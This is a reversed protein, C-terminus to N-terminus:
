KKRGASSKLLDKKKERRMLTPCVRNQWINRQNMM